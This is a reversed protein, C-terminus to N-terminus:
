DNNFIMEALFPYSKVGYSRDAASAYSEDYM